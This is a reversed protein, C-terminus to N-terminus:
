LSRRYNAFPSARGDIPSEARRLASCLFFGGLLGSGQVIRPTLPHKDLALTRPVTICQTQEELVWIERVFVSLFESKAQIFCETEPPFSVMRRGNGQPTSWIHIRGLHVVAPCANPRGLVDDPSGPQNHALVLRPHPRLRRSPRRNSELSLSMVWGVGFLCYNNVQIWFSVTIIINLASCVKLTSTLTGSELTCVENQVQVAWNGLVSIGPM